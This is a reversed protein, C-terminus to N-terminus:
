FIVKLGLQVIRADRASNVTGFTSSRNKGNTGPVFNDGFGALGHRAHDDRQLIVLPNTPRQCNRGADREVSILDTELQELPLTVRAPGDDL